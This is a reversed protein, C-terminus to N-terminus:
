TVHCCYSAYRVMIADSQLVFIGDRLSEIRPGSRSSRQLHAPLSAQIRDIRDNMEIVGTLEAMSVNERPLVVWRANEIIGFLDHTTNWATIISPIGPPQLGVDETLLYEDDIPLPLPVASDAFSTVRRGLLSCVLRSSDSLFLGTGCPFRVRVKRDDHLWAM